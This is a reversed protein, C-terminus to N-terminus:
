RNSRHKSIPLTYPIGEIGEEREAEVGEVVVSGQTGEQAEVLAEEDRQVAALKLARVFDM